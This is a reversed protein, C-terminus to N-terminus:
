GLDVGYVRTRFKEQVDALCEEASPNHVPPNGELAKMIRGEHETDGVFSGVSFTSGLDATKGDKM